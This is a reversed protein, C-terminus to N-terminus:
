IHGIGLDYGGALWRLQYGLVKIIVRTGALHNYCPFLVNKFMALM